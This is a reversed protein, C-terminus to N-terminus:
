VGNEVRKIEVISQPKGLIDFSNSRLKPIDGDVADALELNIKRLGFKLSLSRSHLDDKSYFTPHFLFFTTVIGSKVISKSM